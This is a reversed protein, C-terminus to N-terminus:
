MPLAALHAHAAADDDFYTYTTNGPAKARMESVALRAFVESPHLMAQHLYTPRPLGGGMWHAAVWDKCEASLVPMQRADTLLRHWAHDALLESLRTILPVLKAVGWRGPRFRLVAYGGPHSYIEGAANAFVPTLPALPM